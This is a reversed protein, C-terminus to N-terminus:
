KLDKLAQLLSGRIRASVQETIKDRIRAEHRKEIKRV